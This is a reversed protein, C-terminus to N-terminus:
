KLTVDRSDMKNDGGEANSPGSKADLWPVGKRNQKTNHRVIDFIM